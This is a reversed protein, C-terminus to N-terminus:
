KGSPVPAIFVQGTTKILEADEPKLLKKAVLIDLGTQSITVIKQTDAPNQCSTLSAFALIALITRKM